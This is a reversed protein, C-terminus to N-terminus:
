IHPAPTLDRILEIAVTDSRRGLFGRCVSEGHLLVRLPTDLPHPLPVIDGPQLNRLVNLELECSELRADLRVSQDACAEGLPTLAPRTPQGLGPQESRLRLLAAAAAGNLLIRLTRGGVHRGIRASVAGSWARTLQAISAPQAVMPGLQLARRLAELLEPAAKSALASALVTPTAGATPERQFLWDTVLSLLSDDAYWVKADASTGLQAWVGAYVECDEWALSCSVFFARSGLASWQGFWQAVSAEIREELEALQRPGWWLLPEHEHAVISTKTM